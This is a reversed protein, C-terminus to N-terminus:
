RGGLLLSYGMPAQGAMDRPDVSGLAKGDEGLMSKLDVEALLISSAGVLALAFIEM